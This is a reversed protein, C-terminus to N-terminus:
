PRGKLSVAAELGLVYSDAGFGCIQGRCVAAILSRHRFEERAHINSLHVEIVPVGIASIADRLAVSTHTYAAANLVIEGSARTAHKNAGMEPIADLLSQASGHEGALGKALEAAKSPHAKAWAAHTSQWAARAKAQIAKRAAFFARTEASVFFTEEPLGLAKRAAPIFKVGAEGHGKSSGAVEPIGKAITTKCIILKPKGNRLARDLRQRNWRGCPRLRRGLVHAVRHAEPDPLLDESLLLLDPRRNIWGAECGAEGVRDRALLRPEVLWLKARREGAELGHHPLLL